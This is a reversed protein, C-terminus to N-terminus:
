WGGAPACHGDDSGSGRRSRIEAASRGGQEILQLLDGIMQVVTVMLGAALDTEGGGDVEGLAPQALQEVVKHLAMGWIRM